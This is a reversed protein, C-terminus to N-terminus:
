YNQNFQIIQNATPYSAMTAIGCIGEPKGNNRVMRIYGGDGWKAGWSNKILWYQQGTTKLLEGYGVVTVGHNTRTSCGEDNFVGKKYFRFPKGLADIAVSIPQNAVAKVIEDENNRPVFQYGTIIKASIQSAKEQNCTGQKMTYPYIKETTLGGIKAAYKFAASMWGGHCGNSEATECDLLQQESLSVLRRTKIQSIGEIAAAASFAWCSGCQKQNKIRTVAGHLIWNIGPPVIATYNYMFPTKEYHSPMACGMRSSAFEEDTLDAFENVGLTFTNNEVRNFSDIFKANEKFINFRKVKETQNAYVRGYEVIWQEYRKLMGEDDGLRWRATADCCAWMELVVLIAAFVILHLSNKRSGM